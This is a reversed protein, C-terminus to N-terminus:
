YAQPPHAWLDVSNDRSNENQKAGVYHAIFHATKLMSQDGDLRFGVYLPWDCARISGGILACCDSVLVSYINPV